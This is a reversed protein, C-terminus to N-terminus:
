EDGEPYLAQFAAHILLLDEFMTIGQAIWATLDDTFPEM